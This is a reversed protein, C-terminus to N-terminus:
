PTGPHDTDLGGAARGDDPRKLFTLGVRPGPFAGPCDRGPQPNRRRDAVVENEVRQARAVSARNGDVVLLDERGLALERPEFAQEDRGLRGGGDGAEPAEEPG